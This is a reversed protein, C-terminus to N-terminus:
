AEEPAGTGLDRKSKNHFYMWNSMSKSLSNVYDGKESTSHEIRTEILNNEKTYVSSAEKPDRQYERKAQNTVRRYYDLLKGVSTPDQAM